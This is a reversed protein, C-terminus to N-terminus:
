LGGNKSYVTGIDKDGRGSLCVIVVSDKAAFKSLEELYAIAHSSELAPIIGESKCLLGFGDLAEKDTVSTYTARGSEFLSSHAPGVAPYDLGASVSYTDKIQGDTDELLYTKTGHLIGIKGDPCFRAAHMGSEIGNGGAEVGILRIKKDNLFASFLGISNSGGGVCAVLCDPLRGLAALIQSRAENGIVSQFHGVISPYPHPGLASGLLYHTSEFSATYDRMAANIADKLTQSGSEVVTVKAGLLKMRYVNMEQRRADEKGMYIECELGFLAAVTATAVGHQGAGTEAILRKKGMRKALLAQGLANNIKHAGTHLLDERKLYVKLGFKQSLTKAFYLPTPRGAYNALLDELEANFNKDNIARRFEKELKNLPEVLTEPVYAGGFEGFHKRINELRLESIKQALDNSKWLATGVLIGSVGLSKLFQSDAGSQVGSESIVPKTIAPADFQELIQKTRNLDVKLTALDRNNIGLIDADTQLASKFEEYNYCELLVELGLSHAKAIFKDRDLKERRMVSEVILICDAGFRAAAEIQEFSIVFDKFLVALGAQKAVLLHSLNGKFIKPEVVVSIASAGSDMFIQATKAVDIYDFSYEGAPSAHKIESILAFESSSLATKLSKKGFAAPENPKESYYGSAVNEKAQAIFKDLIDM